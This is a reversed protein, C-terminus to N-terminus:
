WQGLMEMAMQGLSEESVQVPEECYPCPIDGQSTLTAFIMDEFTDGDGLFYWSGNQLMRDLIEASSTEPPAAFRYSCSPCFLEIQM